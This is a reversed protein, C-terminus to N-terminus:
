RRLNPQPAEKVAGWSTRLRSDIPSYDENKTPRPPRKSSRPLKHRATNAACCTQRTSCNSSRGPVEPACGNMLTCSSIIDGSLRLKVINLLNEAEQRFGEKSLSKIVDIVTIGRDKIAESILAVDRPMFGRTDDSGSAIAVSAKMDESPNALGLDEFVASVAEIARRRPDFAHEETLPTLGGDAEFDRQLVLYDEM